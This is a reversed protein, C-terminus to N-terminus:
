GWLSEESARHIAYVDILAIAGGLRANRVVQRLFGLFQKLSAVLDDVNPSGDLGNQFVRQSDSIGMRDWVRIENSNGEDIWSSFALGVSHSGIWLVFPVVKIAM